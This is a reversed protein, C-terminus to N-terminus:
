QFDPGDLLSILQETTKCGSMPELQVNRRKCEAVIEDIISIKTSLRDLRDIVLVSNEASHIAKMLTPREQFPADGSGYEVFTESATLGHKECFLHFEKSSRALIRESSEGQRAHRDFFLAISGPQSAPKSCQVTTSAADPVGSPSEITIHIDDQFCAYNSREYERTRGLTIAVGGSLVTAPRTPKTQHIFQPKGELNMPQNCNPCNM